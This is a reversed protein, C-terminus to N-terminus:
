DASDDPHTFLSSVAAALWATTQSIQDLLKEDGVTAHTFVSYHLGRDDLSGLLHAHLRYVIDTTRISDNEAAQFNRSSRPPGDIGARFHSVM